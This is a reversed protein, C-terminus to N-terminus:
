TCKKYRKEDKRRNIRKKSGIKKRRGHRKEQEGQMGNLTAKLNKKEKKIGDENDKNTKMATCKSRWCKHKMLKKKKNTHEMM